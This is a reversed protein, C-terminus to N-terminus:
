ISFWNILRIALSILDSYATRDLYMISTSMGWYTYLNFMRRSIFHILRGGNDKNSLYEVSFCISYLDPLYRIREIGPIKHHLYFISKIFVNYSENRVDHNSFGIGCFMHFKSYKEGVFVHFLLRFELSIWKLLLTFINQNILKSTFFINWNM